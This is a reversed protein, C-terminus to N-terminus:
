RNRWVPARKELFARLGEAADETNMMDGMYLKEAEAVAEAAPLRLGLDVAKRTMELIVRSQSSIKSVFAAVGEGFGDAPFVRNVLGIREAEAAGMPEGTMLYELTRNRGILRPMIAAAVPPFVGVRIEPQGFKSRDSAVIMDCGIAVECGGGLAAGDVVAVTPVPIASLNAFIANFERMMDGVRDATHDAVDVGASFAKGEARLLVVRASGAGRVQVLAANLEKMMATNLVNLPPRNMVVSVSAGDDIVRIFEFQSM